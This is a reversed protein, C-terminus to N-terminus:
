ICICIAEKNQKPLVASLSLGPTWFVNHDQDTVAQLLDYLFVLQDCDFNYHDQAESQELLLSVIINHCNQNKLFNTVSSSPPM